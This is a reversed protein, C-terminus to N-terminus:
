LDLNDALARDDARTQADAQEALLALLERHATDADHAANIRCIAWALIWLVLVMLLGLAWLAATM